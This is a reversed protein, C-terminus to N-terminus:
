LPFFAFFVRAAGGVALALIITLTSILLANKWGLERGLIAITAVCPVCLTNVLAYVV